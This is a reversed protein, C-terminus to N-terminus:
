EGLVVVQIQSLVCQPLHMGILLWQGTHANTGASTNSGMQAKINQTKSNSSSVDMVMIQRSNM